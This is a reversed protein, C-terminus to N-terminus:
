RFVRFTPHLLMWVGIVACVLILVSSVVVVWRSSRRVPGAVSGQNPAPPSSPHSPAERRPIGGSASSLTTPYSGSGQMPYSGSGQMPYSGSGQM